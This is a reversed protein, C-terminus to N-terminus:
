EIRWIAMDANVSTNAAGTVLLKGNSDIAISTGRDHGDGKFVRMGKLAGDNEYVWIAMDDDLSNRSGGAVFIKGASDVKISMGYSHGIPGELDSHLAIGNVGFTTDLIGNSTFRWVLMIENGSNNKSYGTVLIKGSSDITISTGVDHGNGGAANDHSATGKTGFSTDLTGNVNYRWIVLETDTTGKTSGGAVLIQGNSDIAISTGFDNSNGGSANGHIVQGNTGFSTDLTGNANYRWIVMETDNTGKTSSGAVLIKGNSDIAIANGIDNSNGGAANGHIVQGNTGFSTDLTGNANYRWIVMETDNAAKTSSGAVLIKGNSDIAIANGIDNSNGGAANGHIVLGNTGFTADLKGALPAQPSQPVATGEDSGCGFLSIIALTIALKVFINRGPHNHTSILYTNM